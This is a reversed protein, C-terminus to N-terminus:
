ISGAHSSHSGTEPDVVHHATSDDADSPSTGDRAIRCTSDCNRGAGEASGAPGLITEAIRTAVAFPPIKPRDSNCFVAVFLDADPVSLAHTAFGQIGGGHEISRHGATFSVSWGFGYGAERGDALRASTHARQVLDRSVLKGAMLAQQWKWLDDVNSMLAGAGHPQSMSVFAANSITGARDATYGPIRLPTVRRTEDYSTHTLGAPGFIRDDMYRAYSQGSAKEVVAGLLRYDTNCYDWQTGPAFHLPQDRIFELTRALSMDERAAAGWTPQGTFSPLGSTHTLLHELTITHGGTQVEPVYKTIDDELKIKGAEVLQLIAVATFQKTISGIRFVHEPRMPVSLEVNAAGYGERLVINGRHVVLVAAGPGNAPFSQRLMQDIPQLTATTAAEASRVTTTSLFMLAVLLVAFRVSGPTSSMCPGDCSRRRLELLSDRGNWIGAACTYGRYRPQRNENYEPRSLVEHKAIFAPDIDVGGVRLM